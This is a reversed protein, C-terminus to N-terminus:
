TYFGDQGTQVVMLMIVENMWMDMIDTTDIGKFSLSLETQNLSVQCDLRDSSFDMCGSGRVGPPQPHITYSPRDSM